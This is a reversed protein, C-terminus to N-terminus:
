LIKDGSANASSPSSMAEPSGAALSLRPRISASTSPWKRASSAPSTVGDDVAEDGLGLVVHRPPGATWQAPERHLMLWSTADPWYRKQCLVTRTM